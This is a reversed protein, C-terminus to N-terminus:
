RFQRNVGTMSSRYAYMRKSVGYRAIVDEDSMGQRRVHVLAERPLLLVGALWDAEEEQEKDCAKLLMLGESPISMEEPEHNRIRHALEHMLRTRPTRVTM